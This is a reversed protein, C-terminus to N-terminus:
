TISLSELDLPILLSAIFEMRKLSSHKGGLNFDDSHMRLSESYEFRPLRMGVMGLVTLKRKKSSELAKDDSHADSKDGALHFECASRDLIITESLPLYVPGM